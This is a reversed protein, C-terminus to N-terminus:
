LSYCSIAYYTRAILLVKEGLGLKYHSLLFTLTKLFNMYIVIHAEWQNYMNGWSVAVLGHVYCVYWPFIINTDLEQEVQSQDLINILGPFYLIFTRSGTFRVM